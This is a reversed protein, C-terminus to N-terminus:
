RGSNLCTKIIKQLRVSPSIKKTKMHIEKIVILIFIKKFYELFKSKSNSKKM